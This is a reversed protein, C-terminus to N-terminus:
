AQKSHLKPVNIFYHACLHLSNIIVISFVKAKSNDIHKM